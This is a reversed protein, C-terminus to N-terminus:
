HRGTPPYPLSCSVAGTRLLPLPPIHPALRLSIVSSSVPPRTAAGRVTMTAKGKEFKEKALVLREEACWLQPLLLPPPPPCLLRLPPQDCEPSCPTRSIAVTERRTDSVMYGTPARPAGKKKDKKSGKGSAKKGGAVIRLSHTWM